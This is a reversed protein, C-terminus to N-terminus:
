PTDWEGRLYAEIGERDTPSVAEGYFIGEGIYGSMAQGMGISTTTFTVDNTGSGAPVADIFFAWGGSGDYRCCIVAGVNAVIGTTAEGIGATAAKDLNPHGSSQNIRLSIGGTSGDILYRYTALDALKVVFFITFPKQSSLANPLVLSQDSGTYRIAPHGNIGNTAYIPSNAIGPGSIGNRGAGSSDSWLTVAAGDSLASLSSPKFWALLGNVDAPNIGEGGPDTGGGIEETTIVADNDVSIRVVKSGDPSTILIGKGAAFPGLDENLDVGTGEGGGEPADRWVGDGYLVKTEDIASHPSTGLRDPAVLGSTIDDASHQHATPTRANTFRGDNGAAVTGAGTGVDKTAANGFAPKGTVDVWAVPGSGPIVEDPPVTQGGDAILNLNVTTTDTFAQFRKTVTKARGSGVRVRIEFTYTWHTTGVGLANLWGAQDVRPVEFTVEDADVDLAIPEDARYVIEGTAAWVLDRDTRVRADLLRVTTADFLTAVDGYRVPRTEVAAPLPM